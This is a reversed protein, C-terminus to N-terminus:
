NNQKAFTAKGSVRAPVDQGVPLMNYNVTSLSQRTDIALGAAVDLDCSRFLGALARECDSAASWELPSAREQLRSRRRPFGWAATPGHWPATSGSRLKTGLKHSSHVGRSSPPGPWAEAFCRRPCLACISPHRGSAFVSAGFSRALSRGCGALPWGRLSGSGRPLRKRNGRRAAVGPAAGPLTQQSPGPVSLPLPGAVWVESDRERARCCRQLLSGGAARTAVLHPPWPSLVDVDGSWAKFCCAPHGLICPRRNCKRVDEEMKRASCLLFWERAEDAPSSYPKKGERMATPNLLLSRICLKSNRDPDMQYKPQPTSRCPGFSSELMALVLRLLHLRSLSRLCTAILSDFPESRM